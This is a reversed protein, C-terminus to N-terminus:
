PSGGPIAAVARSWRDDPCTIEVTRAEDAEDESRLIRVMVRSASLGELLGEGWEVVIVSGDLDSALDLDDVEARSGLRYADVHVLDPRDGPNPHVRAIVFTPSTVREDIGLGRGIGQAITTKGAGLDGSLIIVDGGECASGLRAGLVHMDEATPVAFTVPM